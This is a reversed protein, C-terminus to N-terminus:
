LPWCDRFQTQVRGIRLTKLVVSSKFRYSHKRLGFIKTTGQFGGSNMEIDSRPSFLGWSILDPVSQWLRRSDDWGETGNGGRSVIMCRRQLSCSGRPYCQTQVSDEEEECKQMRRFDGTVGNRLSWAEFGSAPSAKKLDSGWIGDPM